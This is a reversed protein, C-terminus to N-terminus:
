NGDPQAELRDIIESLFDSIPSMLPCEAWLTNTLIDALDKNSLSKLENEVKISRILAKVCAESIEMGGLMAKNHQAIPENKPNRCSGAMEM